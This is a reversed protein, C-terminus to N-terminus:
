RGGGGKTTPIDPIEIPKCKKKCCYAVLELHTGCIAKLATGLLFIAQRAGDITTLNCERASRLQMPGDVMGPVFDMMDIHSAGRAPSAVEATWELLHGFLKCAHPLAADMEDEATKRATNDKPDATLDMLALMARRGHEETAVLCRAFALTEPAITM